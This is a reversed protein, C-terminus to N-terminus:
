GCFPCLYRLDLNQQVDQAQPAQPDLLGQRDWSVLLELKVMKGQPGLYAETALIVRYSSPITVM